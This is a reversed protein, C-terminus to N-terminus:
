RPTTPLSALTYLFILTIKNFVRRRVVPEFRWKVRRHLYPRTFVYNASRVGIRQRAVPPSYIRKMTLTDPHELLFSGIRPIRLTKDAVVSIYREGAPLEYYIGIERNAKM